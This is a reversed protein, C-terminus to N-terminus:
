KWTINYGNWMPSPALYVRYGRHMFSVVGQYGTRPVGCKFDDMLGFMKAAKKFQQLTNYQIRISKNSVALTTGNLNNAVLQDISPTKIDVMPMSKLESMGMLRSNYVQKLYDVDYNEKILYSLNMRTFPVFQENLKIYKLHKEYFLGNSVGKKGFTKTRSLEPRICARNKRQDPERIWDDWFAKPWKNQYELWLDKTFMWGLGPFFDSRYLKTPDNDVLGDKGNDNWASVCYISPDSRLIPYLASFYEFFDPSIDLDDEVILVTDYRLVNFTYNLAWGYHRSIKYYGKFKKQAKGRLLIDSQDPQQIYKLRSGYSQIIRRTPDHNCDQSVVIPFMTMNPRYKMLQDLNRKVTVRNCAFLLVAIVPDKAPDMGSSYLTDKYQKMFERKVDIDNIPKGMQRALQDMKRMIRLLEENSKIQRSLEHELQDVKLAIENFDFGNAKPQEILTLPSSSPLHSHSPSSLSIPQLSLLPISSPASSQDSEDSNTRQFWARSTSFLKFQPKHVYLYLQITVYSMFLLTCTFLIKRKRM